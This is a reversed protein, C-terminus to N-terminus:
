LMQGTQNGKHVCYLKDPDSYSYTYKGCKPPFYYWKGNHNATGYGTTSCATLMGMSALLIFTKLKIAYM